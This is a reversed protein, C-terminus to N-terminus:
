DLGGEWVTENVDMKINDEDVYLEKGKLIRSENRIESPRGVVPLIPPRVTLPFANGLNFAGRRQVTKSNM